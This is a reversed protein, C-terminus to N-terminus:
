SVQKKPEIRCLTKGERARQWNDELEPKYEKAFKRITRLKKPHLDGAIKEGDDIKFSAREGGYEAHFHPPDHEDYLMEIRIGDIKFIEPM